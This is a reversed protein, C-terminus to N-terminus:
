APALAADVVDDDMLPASARAPLAAFAVLTVLGATYRARPSPRAIRMWAATGLVLFAGQWFSHFLARAFAITLSTPLLLDPM